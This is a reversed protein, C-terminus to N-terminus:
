YNRDRAIGIIKNISGHKEGREIFIKNIDKGSELLELVSNRGEIQDSFDKDEEKNLNKKEFNPKRNDQKFNRKNQKNKFSRNDRM